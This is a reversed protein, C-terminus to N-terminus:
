YYECTIVEKLNYITINISLMVFVTVVIKDYKTSYFYFLSGCGESEILLLWLHKLSTDIQLM